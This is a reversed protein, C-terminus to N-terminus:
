LPQGYIPGNVRVAGRQEVRTDVTSDLHGEGVHDVKEAGTGGAGSSPEPSGARPRSDYGHALSGPM